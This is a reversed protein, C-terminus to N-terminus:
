KMEMKDVIKRWRGYSSVLQLVRQHQVYSDVRGTLTISHDDVTADVDSGSLVPDSSLLDSISDHIRRNAETQSQPAPAPPAPQSQTTESHPQSSEYTSPPASHPAQGQPQGSLAAMAAALFFLSISSM